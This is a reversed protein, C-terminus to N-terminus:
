RTKQLTNSFLLTKILKVLTLLSLVIRHSADDKFLLGSSVIISCGGRTAHSKGMIDEQEFM